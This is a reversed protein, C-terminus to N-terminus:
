NLQLSEESSEVDIKEEQLSRFCFVKWFNGESFDLPKNENVILYRGTNLSNPIVRQNIELDFSKDNLLTFKLILKDENIFYNFDKLSNFDKMWREILTTPKKWKQITNREMKNEENVSIWSPDGCFRM